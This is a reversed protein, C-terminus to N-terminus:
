AGAGSSIQPAELTMALTRNANSSNRQPERTQFRCGDSSDIINKSFSRLIESLLLRKTHFCCQGHAAPPHQRPQPDSRPESGVAGHLSGREAGRDDQERVRHEEPEEGHLFDAADSLM